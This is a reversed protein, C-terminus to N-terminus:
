VPPPGGRRGGRGGPPGGGMVPPICGAAIQSPTLLKVIEESAAKRDPALAENIPRATEMIARLEDQSKGAERAARAQEMITRLQELQTAHAKDFAQNVARVQGKQVDTLSDATQACRGGPGGRGGRGGPGRGDQAGATAGAAVVLLAAVTLIRYNMREEFSFHVPSPCGAVARCEM